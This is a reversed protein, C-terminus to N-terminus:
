PKPRRSFGKRFMALMGGAMVSALVIHAINAGMAGIRPILLLAVIHFSATAVIVVILLKNQLGMSLLASRLASGSLTIGGALTQVLVLPAAALFAPGATLQLIMEITFYFFIFVSIGFGLLVAEVQLISRKFEKYAHNAWLRAVDPYIVSQVQVGIQQITRGVRKAIHYLGASAPDALLGVLLTDCEFATSRITLSLNASWAFGWIGPFRASIGTLPALLVGKIGRRHLTRFAVVVFFLSSFIQTAIWILAFEFLGGGLAVGIGCLVLRVLSATFQGYAILKFHGYIRLVATPMGSVHFILVSCYALVLVITSEEIGLIPAAILTLGIAIVWSVLAALVDLSLGFKLLSKLDAEGEVGKLGAGYKILPQWSQFSIIREVGRTYSFCLALLGYEAPGLARATLAFAMLGILSSLFNGTLLHGISLFRKKFDKEQRWAGAVRRLRGKLKDYNQM